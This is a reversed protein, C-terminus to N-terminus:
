IIEVDEDATIGFTERVHEVIEDDENIYVGDTDLAGFQTSGLFEQEDTRYGRFAQFTCGGQAVVTITTSM